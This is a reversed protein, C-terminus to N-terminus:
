NAFKLLKTARQRIVNLHAMIDSYPPSAAHDVSWKLPWLRTVNHTSIASWVWHQLYSTQHRGHFLLSWAWGRYTHAFFYQM